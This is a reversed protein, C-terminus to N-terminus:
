QGLADRVLAMSDRPSLALSRLHELVLKHAQVDEPDDVFTGTTVGEVYILDNTTPDIYGLYVFSGVWMGPYLGLDVSVIQVSVKPLRTQDLLYSFQEDAVEPPCRRLAAEDIVAWYQPGSERDLIAQRALRAEVRRDIERDSLHPATAPIAYRMYAETQLLGPVLGSEFTHVVDAIDEADIYASYPLDAFPRRRLVQLAVENLEAIMAEDAGLYRALEQVAMRDIRKTQGREYRSLRSPSWFELAAHVEAATLGRAERLRRLENGLRTQFVSSSPPKPM